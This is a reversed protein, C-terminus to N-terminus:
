FIQAKKDELEIQELITDASTCLAKALNRDELDDSLQKMTLIVNRVANNSIANEDESVVSTYEEGLVGAKILSQSTKLLGPKGSMKAILYEMQMRIKGSMFAEKEEDPLYDSLTLLKKFLEIKDNNQNAADEDSLIKEITPILEQASSNTNDDYLDEPMGLLAETEDQSLSDAFMGSDDTSFDSTAYAEETETFMPNSYDEEETIVSANIEEEPVAQIVPNEATTTAQTYLEQQLAAQQEEMTKVRSKLEEQEGALQQAIKQANLATEMAYSSSSMMADQLKQQMQDQYQQAPPYSSAQQPQAQEMQPVQMPAKSSHNSEEAAADDFQSFDFPDDVYDSVSSKDNQPYNQPYNSGNQYNGESPWQQSFNNNSTTTTTDNGRGSGFGSGNNGDFSSIQTAASEAESEEPDAKEPTGTLEDLKDFFPMEDEVLAEELPVNGGLQDFDFDQEVPEEETEAEIIEDEAIENEVIVEQEIEQPVVPEEQPVPAPQNLMGQLKTIQNDALINPKKLNRSKDYSDIANQINGARTYIKGLMNYGVPNRIERAVFEKAKAEAKENNGIQSYREAASLIHNKYHKNIRTIKDSYEKAKADDEACIYYQELLDLIQLDKPDEEAALETVNLFAADYEKASLLTHVYQKKIDLDDPAIELARSVPDLAEEPKENKELAEALGSLAQIDKSDVSEARRFTKVASTFDFQELYIRGLLCLLKADNPHLEISRTVIDSAEKTKQCRILLSSFDKIADLWGPKAKLAAEFCRIADPYMQAKDYCLALNYNLIPHNKDVGLGKKYSAISKQYNEQEYYIKGLHNYALVDSPNENVVIEFAEIADDYNGMEKYTFGLNYNVSGTQRDEELARQLIEISENYRHLRRYIAGLSNMAEVYHPYFTIIQEYYPIAKADEGNKVYISGLERLYDVNSPDTKLLQKYLRAATVFDRSIVASQARTLVLNKENVNSM